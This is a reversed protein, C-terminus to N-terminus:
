VTMIQQIEAHETKEEKPEQAQRLVQNTCVRFPAVPLGNKAFVTVPGYNYWCYRAYVPNPVKDSCLIIQNLKGETGGFAFKAPYYVEDSGAVEFGTFDDPLDTGQSHEVKRYNELVEEDVKHIFGEDANKIYVQCNRQETQSLARNETIGGNVQELEEDKLEKINSM